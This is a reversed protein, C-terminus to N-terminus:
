ENTVTPSYAHALQQALKKGKKICDPLSVGDKWNACVYLQENELKDAIQHAELVNMDYQPLAKDWRYMNQHLPNNRIQYNEALEQHVKGLTIQKSQRTNEPATSGGIFTTFLVEDEPCRNNFVSSSWISGSTFLEETKPNLGGFGNLPHKVDQRKYISHVAVVPPYYIKSLAQTFEPYTNALFQQAAPAATAIVLQKVEFTQGENAYITFGNNNKQINEVTKGLKLHDLKKAIGQPLAQMGEKFSFIQRREGSKNKILGKVVSGYEQEYQYIQPFAKAILLQEPDGAYIGAVFPSLAYDVIEKSFRREFFQSLTENEIVQKPKKREKFIALKSSFSFFSNFLLKSPKSPLKRYRGERFIYRNQSIDNSAQLEDALGVDNILQHIENDVMISNPGLELLYSKRNISNEHMTSIYGGVQESAELLIYPIDLKQLHFALSLGSIGAGIIGIM